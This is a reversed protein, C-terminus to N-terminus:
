VGNLVSRIATKSPALQVRDPSGNDACHPREPSLVRDGPFVPLQIGGCLALVIGQHQCPESANDRDSVPVETRLGFNAALKKASWSYQTRAESRARIHAATLSFIRPPSTVPM